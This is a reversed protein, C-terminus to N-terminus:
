NGVAPAAITSALELEAALANLRVQEANRGGPIVSGVVPNRLCWALAWQAMSVGPSLENEKIEAIERLWRTRKEADITSRMDDAPFSDALSYKGSLFGSALPVRALIGLRDRRAVPFYDSEAASSSAATSWRCSKWASSRPRRPRCSAEKAPSRRASIGSRARANQQELMSWLEDQRFMEDAGSHFQYLDIRDTRLARLSDELQERVEEPSLHWSRDMFRHFKHGFKTAIIWRDRGRRALYDGILSESVRDGYCEATDVLNVGCEAAADLIADAEGQSYNKGWEGGLQWTGLGIVSVELQTSGLKRFRMSLNYGVVERTVIGCIVQFKWARGHRRDEESGLPAVQDHAIIRNVRRRELWQNRPARFEVKEAAFGVDADDAEAKQFGFDETHTDRHEAIELFDVQPEVDAAFGSLAPAAADSKDAFQHRAPRDGEDGASNVALGVADQRHAMQDLVFAVRQVDLIAPLAPLFPFRDANQGAARRLWQDPAAVLLENGLVVPAIRGAAAAQAFVVDLMRGPPDPTPGLAIQVGFDARQIAVQENLGERRPRNRRKNGLSRRHSHM